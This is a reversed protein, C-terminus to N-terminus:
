ERFAHLSQNETTSFLRTPSPALFPVANTQVVNLTAKFSWSAKTLCSTRVLTHLHFPTGYFAGCRM